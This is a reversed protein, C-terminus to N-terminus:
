PFRAALAVPFPDLQARAPASRRTPMRVPPSAALHLASLGALLALQEDEARIIVPASPAAYSPAPQEDRNDPLPCRDAAGREAPQLHILTPEPTM